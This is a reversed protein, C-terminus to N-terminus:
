FSEILRSARLYKRPKRAPLQLEDADPKRAGYLTFHLVDSFLMFLAAAAGVIHNCFSKCKFGKRYV